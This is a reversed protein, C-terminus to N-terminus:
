IDHGHKTTKTDGKFTMFLHIDSTFGQWESPEFYIFIPIVVVEIGKQKLWESFPQLRAADKETTMMVKSGDLHQWTEYLSEMDWRTFAYHDPFFRTTVKPYNSHLFKELPYPDAIGSVLLVHNKTDPSIVPSYDALSYMQGYRVSSFYVKQWKHPNLKAIVQKKEELSLGEPSKTVLIIDARDASASSERLTGLPFISDDPYLHHYSTLLINLGPKISRHQFADDLLIVVASPVDQCLQPVATLRDASVAVAVGPLKKFFMYPEDGLDAATMGPMALLYGRSKRKYGRSLIAPTYEKQLLKALFIIHPSKGTGGMSLNGVSIIPIDFRYSILWRQNYLYNRIGTILQYLLSPPFLFLFRLLIM